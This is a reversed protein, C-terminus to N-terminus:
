PNKNNEYDNIMAKIIEIRSAAVSALIQGEKVKPKLEERQENLLQKLISLKDLRTIDGHLIPPLLEKQPEMVTEKQYNFHNSKYPPSEYSPSLYWCATYIVGMCITLKKFAPGPVWPGTYSVSRYGKPPRYFDSRSM